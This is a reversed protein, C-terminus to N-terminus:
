GAHTANKNPMAVGVEDPTAIWRASSRKTALSKAVAPPLYTSVSRVLARHRCSLEAM